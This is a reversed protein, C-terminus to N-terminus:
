NWGRIWEIQERIREYDEAGPTLELYRELYRIADAYRHMEMAITGRDRLEFVDREDLILLRDIAAAAGALNRRSLHTAKLHALLRALIERKGFSRLHHERLRVAGGFVSDMIQQCEATSLVQGSEFPDILIEGWPGAVKVLFRGPLSVGTVPLGARRSIEIYLISLSLPRGAHRDLVENFFSSRPDYYDGEDGHFGEEEFLLHNIEEVIREVDHSSGVRERVAEGWRDIRVLYDDVSLAPYEELAIVLSAEGLDLDEDSRTAIERFRERAAAPHVFLRM